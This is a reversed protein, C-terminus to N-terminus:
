MVTRPINKLASFEFDESVLIADYKHKDNQYM